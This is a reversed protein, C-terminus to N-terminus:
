ELGFGIKWVEQGSERDTLSFVSRIVHPYGACRSDDITISYKTWDRLKTIDYDNRDAWVIEQLYDDNELIYPYSAILLIKRLDSVVQRRSHEDRMSGDAFFWYEVAHYWCAHASELDLGRDLLYKLIPLVGDDMLITFHWIPNSINGDDYPIAPKSLDMGHQCFLKTIELLKSYDEGMSYSDVVASFLNDKEGYDNIVLGLPEAGKSLLQEIQSYGNFHSTCASLLRKNLETM